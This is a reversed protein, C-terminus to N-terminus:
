FSEVILRDRGVKLVTTHNSLVKKFDELDAESPCYGANEMQSSFYSALEDLDYEAYELCFAIPDVEFETGMDNELDCLHEYLVKLGDHSFKDERDAEKFEDRFEGVSLTKKMTKEKFKESLAV